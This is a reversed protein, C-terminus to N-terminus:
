EKSLATQLNTARRDLESSTKGNRDGWMLFLANAMVHALHPRGTDPDRIEGRAYAVAHRFMASLYRARFPRVLMWNDDAYKRAGEDLVGVVEEIEQWLPQIIFWNAKGADHKIGESM